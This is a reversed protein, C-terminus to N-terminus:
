AASDALRVPTTCSSSPCSEPAEPGDYGGNRPDGFAEVRNRGARKARYLSRDAQEILEGGDGDRVPFVFSVGASITLQRNDGFRFALKLVAERIHNAIVVAEALPTNALVVVFEEGGYRAALDTPRKAFRGLIGAIQCLCADGAAHGLADNLMKFHDVDLMIVSMPLHQRLSRRWENRLFVGLRRRNALGTLPDTESMAELAQEAIKRSTINTHSVLYRRPGEYKMVAIRMMFWRRIRPSHCPYEAEFQDSDGSLVRRIGDAVETIQADQNEVGVNCVQLYNRGRWDFSTPMGNSVGFAIWTENVHVIQGASDIVAIQHDLSDLVSEFFSASRAGDICAM